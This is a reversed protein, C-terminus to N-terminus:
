GSSLMVRLDAQARGGLRVLEAGLRPALGFAIVHAVHNRALYSLVLCLSSAAQREDGLCFFLELWVQDDSESPLLVLKCLAVCRGERDRTTLYRAREGLDFASNHVLLEPPPDRELYSTLMDRIEDDDEPAVTRAHLSAVSGDALKEWRKKWRKRVRADLDLTHGSVPQGHEQYGLRALLARHHQVQKASALIVLPFADHTAELLLEMAEPDLHAALEDILLFLRHGPRFPYPKTVVDGHAEALVAKVARRDGPHNVDKPQPTFQRDTDRPLSLLGSALSETLFRTWAPVERVRQFPHDSAMVFAHNEFPHYVATHPFASAVSARVVRVLGPVPATQVVLMGGPALRRRALSYFASTYLADLTVTYPDPFDCLILDFSASSEELTVVADSAVVEVRPDALADENLAVLDPQRCALDLVAADHECVVIREICDFRVLRTVALGDGGGGIFVRAPSSFLLPVVALAEHYRYEQSEAFQRKGDLYLVLGDAPHLELLIYQQPSRQEHLKM